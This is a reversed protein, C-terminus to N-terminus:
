KEDDRGTPRQADIIDRVQRIPIRFRRAVKMLPSHTEGNRYDHRGKAAKWMLYMRQERTQAM